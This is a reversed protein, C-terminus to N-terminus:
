IGVPATIEIEKAGLDFPISLTRNTISTTETYKIEQKDVFIIFKMDQNGYASKSDLLARPIAVYLVGSSTAHVSFILSKNKMDSKVGLMNAGVLDYPILFGDTKVFYSIPQGRIAWGRQILKEATAHKVCAPYKNSTKYVLDLDNSCTINETPIGTDIQKLPSETVPTVIGSTVPGGLTVECPHSEMTPHTASVVKMTTMDVVVTAQWDNSCAIPASSSPAKLVVSAYQWEFGGAIGIKNNSGFGMEVYKWDHSWNQLEPVSLAVSVVSQTESPSLTPVPSLLISSTISPIPNSSYTVNQASNNTPNITIKEQTHAVGSTADIQWIGPIANIPITFNSSSFHGTKDSFTQISKVSIGSPDVLSLQVLTNPNWAGLITVNDGPLYSNKDTNLMIQDGTTALGVAFSTTLKSILSTAITSYVGPKYSSIDLVYRATGNSSLNIDHTFIINSSPDDIELHAVANPVGIITMVPKDTTEYNLKDANIQTLAPPPYNNCNIGPGEICPAYAQNTVFLIFFGLIVIVIVNLKM